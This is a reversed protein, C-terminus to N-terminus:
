ILILWLFPIILSYGYSFRRKKNPANLLILMSFIAIIVCFYLMFNRIDFCISTILIFKIYDFAQEQSNFLIQTKKYFIQYFFTAAMIGVAVSYIAFIITQDILVRNALGVAALTSLLQSSFRNHTFDTVMLIVVLVSILSYIIFKESFTFKLYCIVFLITCSLEIFLHSRPIKFNCSRCKGLTFIWNLLPILDRTKITQQCNPCRSKAGFYRGFCSEGRPLRYAFLTAYSGFIAGFAAALIVGIVQEM